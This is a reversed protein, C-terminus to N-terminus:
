TAARAHRPLRDKPGLHLRGRGRTWAQLALGYQMTRESPLRLVHQLPTRSSAARLASRHPRCREAVAERQAPKRLSLWSVGIAALAVVTLVIIGVVKLFTKM